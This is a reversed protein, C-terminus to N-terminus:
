PIEFWQGSLWVEYEDAPEHSRGRDDLISVQGRNNPLLRRTNFRQYVDEDALPDFRVREGISWIFPKRPVSPWGNPKGEGSLKPPPAIGERLYYFFGGSYPDLPVSNLYSTQLQILHEPLEGHHDVKWAEIAMIIHTARRQTEERTWVWAQSASDLSYFPSLLPTTRLWADVKGRIPPVNWPFPLTYIVPHGIVSAQRVTEFVNLDGNTCLNLLRLSRSREWPLLSWPIVFQARAPDIHSEAIAVPGGTVARRARLYDRKTRDAPSRLTTELEQLQKIAAVISERTQGPQAAWYPLQSYSWPHNQLMSEFRLIVLWRKWAEDLKGESELQRASVDLLHALPGSNEWFKGDNVGHLSCEPRKAADLALDLSESNARLYRLDGDDPPRASNDDDANQRPDKLLYAARVFMDATSKASESPEASLAFEEPSFGPSSDPIQYVRYLAMAAVLAALSLVLAAAIRLWGRWTNRELIWDPTRLWTAFLLVLPIPCLSWLWSIEMFQILQAWGYLILTSVLGVFAALIGSRLFMSGLQGCAFGAITLLVSLAIPPLHGYWMELYNVPDNWTHPNLSERAATLFQPGGQTFFWLVHVIITWVCLVAFWTLLKALWVARLPVAHEGFFRFRRGEQDGLFVCSGMLAATAAIVAIRANSSKFIYGQVVAPLPSAFAALGGFVALILMLGRSQRWTQWTIRGLVAGRTAPLSAALPSSAAPAGLGTLVQYWRRGPVRPTALWRPILLLDALLVLGVLGVRYPLVTVYSVLGGGQFRPALSWVLLHIAVSAAAIALMAAQLPRRLILSFFLGWALGEVAAMGLAGLLQTETANDPARGHTLFDGSVRLAGMLLVTSVVAFALKGSLLRWATLPLSRLFEYTGEEKEAAFMTAGCAVAYLAPCILAFSFTWAASFHTLGPFAVLALQALVALVAMSIWFARMMCYEKWFFRWFIATTM